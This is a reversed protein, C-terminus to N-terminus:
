YVEISGLTKLYLLTKKMMEEIDEVTGPVCDSLNEPDGDTILIDDEIRVGINWWKPDHRAKKSTFEPEVTIM